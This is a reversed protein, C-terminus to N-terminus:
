YSVWSVIQEKQKEPKMYFWACRGTGNGNIIRGDETEFKILNTVIDMHHICEQLRKRKMANIFEVRVLFLIPLNFEFLLREMIEDALNFPPNTVVADVGDPKDCTLVDLTQIDSRRPNLDTALRIKDSVDFIVGDGACCEWWSEHLPLYKEILRACPEPTKYFDDKARTRNRM